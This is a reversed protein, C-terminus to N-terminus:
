HQAKGCNLCFQGQGMEAGCFKCKAYMGSSTSTLLRHNTEQIQTLKANVKVMQDEFNRNNSEMNAVLNAIVAQQNREINAATNTTVKNTTANIIGLCVLLGGILQFVLGFSQIAQDTPLINLMANVFTSERIIALLGAEFM